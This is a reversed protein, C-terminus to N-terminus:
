HGRPDHAASLCAPQPRWGGDAGFVVNAGIKTYVTPLHFTANIATTWQQWQQTLNAEYFVAAAKSFNGDSYSVWDSLLWGENGRSSPQCEADSGLQQTIFPLASTSSYTRCSQAWLISAVAGTFCATLLAACIALVVPRRFRLFRVNVAAVTVSALADVAIEKKSKDRRKTSLMARQASSISTPQKSM